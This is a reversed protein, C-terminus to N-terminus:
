DVKVPDDTSEVPVPGAPTPTRRLCARRIARTIADLSAPKEIVQDLGIRVVPYTRERVSREGLFVVPITRTAEFTQLNRLVEEATIGALGSDLILAHAKEAVARMLAAQGNTAVTVRWGDRSLAVRLLVGLDPDSTAVLVHESM